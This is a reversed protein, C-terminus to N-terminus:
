GVNKAGCMSTTHVFHKSNTSNKLGFSRVTKLPQFFACCVSGSPTTTAALITAAQSMTSNSKVITTSSSTSRPGKRSTWVCENGRTTIENGTVLNYNCGDPGNTVRTGAGDMWQVFNQRFFRFNLLLCCMCARSFPCCILSNIECASVNMWVRQRQM